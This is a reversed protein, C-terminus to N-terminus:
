HTQGQSLGDFLTAPVYQCTGLAYYFLIKLKCQIVKTSSLLSCTASREPFFSLLFREKTGCNSLRQLHLVFTESEGTSTVAKSFTYKQTLLDNHEFMCTEPSPVIFYSPLFHICAFIHAHTHARGQSHKTNFMLCHVGNLSRYISPYIVFTLNASTNM